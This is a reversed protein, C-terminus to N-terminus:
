QGGRDGTHRCMLDMCSLSLRRSVADYQYSGSGCLYVGSDYWRIEGSRNHKMGIRLRIYKDIWGSYEQAAVSNEAIHIELSYTRRIISQSDCSYSDSIVEGALEGVTKMQPDLLEIRAYVERNSQRLIELDEAQVNYM